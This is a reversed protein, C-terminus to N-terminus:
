WEYQKQVDYVIGGTNPKMFGNYFFFSYVADMFHVKDVTQSLKEFNDKKKSMLPLIFNFPTWFNIFNTKQASKM